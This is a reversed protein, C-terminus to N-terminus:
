SILKKEKQLSETAKSGFSQLLDLHQQPCPRRIPAVAPAAYKGLGDATERPAFISVTGCLDTPTKSDLNKRHHVKIRLIKEM